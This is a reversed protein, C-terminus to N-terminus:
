EWEDGLLRDIARTLDADRERVLLVIVVLSLLSLVGFFALVALVILEGTSM